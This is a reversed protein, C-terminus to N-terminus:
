RGAATDALYALLGHLSDEGFRVNMHSVDTQGHSVDPRLLRRSNATYEAKTFQNADLTSEPQFVSEVGRREASQKCLNWIKKRFSPELREWLWGRNEDPDEVESADCAGIAPIPRPSLIVRTASNTNAAKSAIRFIHKSAMWRDVGASLCNDSLHVGLNLVHHISGLLYHFNFFAGYFFLVDFKAPDIEAYRGESVLLIKDRISKPGRIVGKRMRMKSFNKGPAGFFAIEADTGDLAGNDVAHKLAAIHSSGLVCIKM